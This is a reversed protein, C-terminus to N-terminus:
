LPRRALQEWLARIALMGTSAAELVGDECDEEAGSIRSLVYCWRGHGRNILLIRYDGFRRSLNRRPTWNWSAPCAFDPWAMSELFKSLQRLMGWLRCEQFCSYCPNLHHHAKKRRKTLAKPEMWATFAAIAQENVVATFRGTADWYFAPQIWDISIAPRLPVSIKRGRELLPMERMRFLPRVRSAAAPRAPSTGFWNFRLVSAKRLVARFQIPLAPDAHLFRM